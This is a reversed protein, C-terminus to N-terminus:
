SNTMVDLDYRLCTISILGDHNSSPASGAHIDHSFRSVHGAEELREESSCAPPDRVVISPHFSFAWPPQLLVKSDGTVNDSDKGNKKDHIREHVSLAM